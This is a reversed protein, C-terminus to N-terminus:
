GLSRSKLSVMGSVTLTDLLPIWCPYGDFTDRELYVGRKAIEPSFYKPLCKAFWREVKCLTSEVWYFMRCQQVLNKLIGGFEVWFDTLINSTKKQEIEICRALSSGLLKITCRELLSDRGSEFLIGFNWSCKPCCVGPGEGLLDM